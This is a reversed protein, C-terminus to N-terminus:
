PLVELAIRGGPMGSGEFDEYAATVEVTFDFVEPLPPSTQNQLAATVRAESAVQRYDATVTIPVDCPTGAQCLRLWDLELPWSEGGLFYQTGGVTAFGTSGGADPRWLLRHANGQGVLRIRLTGVHPFALTDGLLRGDAHLVLNVATAENTSAVRLLPSAAATSVVPPGGTSPDDEAIEIMAATPPSKFSSDTLILAAGLGVEGSDLGDSGRVVTTVGGVCGLACSTTLDFQAGARGDYGIGQSAVVGPDDPRVSVSIAPDAGLVTPAGRTAAEVRLQVGMPGPPDVVAYRVHRVVIPADSTLPAAILIDKAAAPPQVDPTCAGLVAIATAALALRRHAPPRSRKQTREIVPGGHM